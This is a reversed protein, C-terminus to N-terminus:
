RALRAARALRFRVGRPVTGSPSSPCSGLRSDALVGKVCSAGSYLVNVINAAAVGYTRVRPLSVPLSALQCAKTSFNSADM